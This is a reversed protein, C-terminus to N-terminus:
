VARFFRTIMLQAGICLLTSGRWYSSPISGPTNHSKKIVNYTQLMWPQKKACISVTWIPEGKIVCMKKQWWVFSAPRQQREQATIQTTTVIVVVTTCMFRRWVSLSHTYVGRARAHAQKEATAAPSGDDDPEGPELLSAPPFWLPTPDWRTPSPWNM